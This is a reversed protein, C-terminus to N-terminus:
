SSMSIPTIVASLESTVGRFLAKWFIVSMEQSDVGQHLYYLGEFPLSCLGEHFFVKCSCFIPISSNVIKLLLMYEYCIDPELSPDIIAIDPKLEGIRAASCESIKTSCYAFDLTEIKSEIDSSPGQDPYIILININSNM